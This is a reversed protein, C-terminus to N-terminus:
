YTIQKQILEPTIKIRALNRAIREGARGTGYPNRCLRVKRRFSEDYLAKRIARAIATREPEVDIVNEARERLNQRIGVNVVPVHFSPTEIVGSSSNGIMVAAHRMASLFLSHDLNKFSHIFPLKEYEKIVRIMARGGADSNPYILITQIGFKKVGELTEKMQAAALGSQTTVPHQLVLFFPKKPDLGLKECLERRGLHKEHLVTDLGPAGAVFVKKPNEGMKIIREASKRTAPFHIVALKTIAHRVYEDIGAMSKDGGHVHAVPINMHVAAIAAAFPESRDGIVLVVDPKIKKFAETFRIIGKGIARAMAAGTDQEPVMPVEADIRFGDKRIEDVTHGFEKSLHMGAVCVFLELGAQRQIARMVPKLLGYTARTGTIVVVRKM